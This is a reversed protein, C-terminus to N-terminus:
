WVYHAQSNFFWTSTWTTGALSTDQVTVLSNHAHGHTVSYHSVRCAIQSKLTTM